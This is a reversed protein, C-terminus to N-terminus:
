PWRTAARQVWTMSSTLIIIYKLYNLLLLRDASPGAEQIQIRPRASYSL